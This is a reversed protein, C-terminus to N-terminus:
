GRHGPPFGSVELPASCGPLVQHLFLKGGTRNTTPLHRLSLHFVARKAHQSTCRVHNHETTSLAPRALRRERHVDRNAEQNCSSLDRGEVEVGILLAQGVIQVIPTEPCFVGFNIQGDRKM